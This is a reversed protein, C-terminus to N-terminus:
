EGPKQKGVRGIKDQRPRANEVRLPIVLHRRGHRHKNVHDGVGPVRLGGNEEPIIVEVIKVPEGDAGTVEQREVYGRQKGLTKLTLTLAWPEGNMVAQELKLEAKDIFLGRFNDITERVKKDKEARRYITMPSCGLKQAAIYVM